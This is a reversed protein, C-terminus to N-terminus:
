GKINKYDNWWMKPIKHTYKDASRYLGTCGKRICAVLSYTSKAGNPTRCYQERIVVLDTTDKNKRNCSCESIIIPKTGM